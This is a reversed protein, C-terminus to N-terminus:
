GIGRANDFYFKEHSHKKYIFFGFDYGGVIGYSKATYHYFCGWCSQKLDDRTLDPYEDIIAQPLEQHTM